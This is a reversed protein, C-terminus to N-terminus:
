LQLFGFLSNLCNSLFEIEVLLLDLRCKSRLRRMGLVHLFIAQRAMLKTSLYLRSEWNLRVNVEVLKGPISKHVKFFSLSENKVGVILDGPM